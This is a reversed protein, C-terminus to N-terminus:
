EEFFKRLFKSKTQQKSTKNNSPSLAYYLSTEAKAQLRSVNLGQIVSNQLSM